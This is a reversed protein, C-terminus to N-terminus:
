TPGGGVELGELKRQPGRHQKQPGKLARERLKIVTRTGKPVLCEVEKRTVREERAREKVDEEVEEVEEIKQKVGKIHFM